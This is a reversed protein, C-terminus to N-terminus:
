PSKTLIRMWFNSQTINLSKNNNQTYQTIHKLANISKRITNGGFNKDIQYKPNGLKKSICPM